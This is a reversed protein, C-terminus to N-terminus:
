LSYRTYIDVCHIHWAVYIWVTHHVMHLFTTFSIPRTTNRWLRSRYWCLLSRYWISQTCMWQACICACYIYTCLSSLAYITSTPLLSYIYGCLSYMTRSSVNVCHPTGYTSCITYIHHIYSDRTYIDVCHICQPGYMWVTHHVMRLISQTYITSIPIECHICQPGYMWVTHHVMRLVSQTYITSISIELIYICVTCINHGMYENQIWVNDHVMYSIYQTSIWQTNVCYIYQITSIPFISYIYGCLSYTTRWLNVCQPTSFTFYITYRNVTCLYICWIYMWVAFYLTSINFISYIYEWLSFFTNWIHVCYRTGYM